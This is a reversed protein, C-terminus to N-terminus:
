VALVDKNGLVTRTAILVCFASVGLLTWQVGILKALWGVIFNGIPSIGIFCTTYFGMVRGRLHDPAYIQLLTNTSALMTISSFGAIILMLISLPLYTSFAFISAATGLGFSGYIVMKGRKMTSSYTAQLLGGCLAGAGITGMLFGMGSVGVNLINDAYVPMLVTYAFGFAGFFVINIMLSRHLPSSRIFKYAEVWERAVPERVKKVPKPLGTMMSLTLILAFFSLANVFFCGAEGIFPVILGAISPGVLRAGNFTSSNLAVANGLDEKGVLDHIFALRAPADIAAFIGSIGAIIVVQTVTVWNYYTVIALALASLALGTQTIYLVRKKITRDVLVGGLSGLLLTPLQSTTNVLGLMFPDHSLRWVLWGQALNQM